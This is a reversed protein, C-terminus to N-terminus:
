MITDTGVLLLVAWCVRLIAKETNQKIYEYYIALVLNLFSLLYLVFIRHEGM